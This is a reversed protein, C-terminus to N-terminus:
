HHPEHQSEYYGYLKREYVHDLTASEDYEPSNKIAEKTHDAVVASDDWRVEKIWTPSILVRNGSLWNGTDVVIFRIEWNQDDIIYDKVKGIEGDLAHIKYGEVEDTSRLHQDNGQNVTDYDHEDRGEVRVPTVMGAIGGSYFGAGWYQPWTYYRNLDM